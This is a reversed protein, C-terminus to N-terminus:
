EGQTEEAVATKAAESEKYEKIIKGAQDNIIANLYDESSNNFLAQVAVPLKSFSGSVKDYLDNMRKYDYIDRPLETADGVFGNEHINLVSTDGMKAKAVITHIDTSPLCSQILADHDIKVGRKAIKEGKEGFSLDVKYTYKDGCPSSKTIINKRPLVKVPDTSIPFLKNPDLKKKSENM